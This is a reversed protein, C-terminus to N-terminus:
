LYSLPSLIQINAHSSYTVTKGNQQLYFRPKGLDVATTFTTCGQYNGLHSQNQPQNRGTLVGSNAPLQAQQPQPALIVQHDALKVSVSAHPPAIAGFCILEGPLRAIDVAPTLSDKRFALDQPIEPTTTLRTVQIQIQQNQYQVTFLNKGIELPFSPSFNGRQSRNIREGNILVKGDSPATGLFFIKETSTQYNSPPFVIVLSSQASAFSSTILFSFIALVLFKKM